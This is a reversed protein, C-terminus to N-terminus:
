ARSQKGKSGNKAGGDSGEGATEVLTVTGAETDELKPISDEKSDTLTPYPCDSDTGSLKPMMM